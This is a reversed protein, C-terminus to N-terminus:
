LRLKLKRALISTLIGRGSSQVNDHFSKVLIETSISEVNSDLDSLVSGGPSPLSSLQVDGGLITSVEEDSFNGGPPLFSYMFSNM